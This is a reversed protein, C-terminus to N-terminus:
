QKQYLFTHAENHFSVVKNFTLIPALFHVDDILILNTVIGLSM